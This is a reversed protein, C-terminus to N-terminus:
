GIKDLMKKHIYVYTCVYMFVYMWINVCHITHRSIDCKIDDKIM